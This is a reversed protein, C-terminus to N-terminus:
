KRTQKNATAGQETLEYSVLVSANFHAAYDLFLISADSSMCYKNLM